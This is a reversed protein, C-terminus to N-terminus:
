SRTLLRLSERVMAHFFRGGGTLVALLSGFLLAVQVSLRGEPSWYVDALHLWLAFEDLTLAAAAGYALATVRSAVRSSSDEGIGVQGLWALGVGLLLLIGWVLHHVHVSGVRVNRFPGGGAAIAHTIGRVAVFTAFFAVSALFLREHRPEIFHRQYLDRARRPARLTLHGLVVGLATAAIAVALLTTWFWGPTV